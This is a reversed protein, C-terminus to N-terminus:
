KGRTVRVDETDGYYNIHSWRNTASRVGFWGYPYVARGTDRREWTRCDATVSPSNVSAEPVPDITIYRNVQPRYPGTSQRTFLSLVPYGAAAPAACVAATLLAIGLRGFRM